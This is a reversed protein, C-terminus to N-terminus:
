ELVFEDVSSLSCGSCDCCNCGVVKWFWRVFRLEYKLTRRVDRDTEFALLGKLQNKANCIMQWSSDTTLLLDSYTKAWGYALHRVRASFGREYAWDRVLHKNM